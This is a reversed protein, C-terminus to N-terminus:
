WSNNKTGTEAIVPIDSQSATLNHDWVVCAYEFMPRIVVIYFYLLDDASVGAWKLQKFLDKVLSSCLM